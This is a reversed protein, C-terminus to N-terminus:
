NAPDTLNVGDSLLWQEMQHRMPPLDWYLNHVDYTSPFGFQSADWVWLAGQDAFPDAPATETPFNWAERLNETSANIITGDHLAEQLLVKRGTPAYPALAAPDAPDIGWQALERFAALYAPFHKETLSLGVGGAFVGLLLQGAKGDFLMTMRGGPVTLGSAQLHTSSAVVGGGILAGLSNGWYHPHDTDLQDFPAIAAAHANRLLRQMQLFEIDSQRFEDRVALLRTFDFFHLVSGRFGHDTATQTVVAIGALAFSSCRQVGEDSTGSIGHSVMVVPWGGAPATGEPICLRFDVTTTGPTGASGNVLSRDLVGNADRFDWATWTGQAFAAIGATDAGVTQFIHTFTPSGALFTGAPYDAVAPPATFVPLLSSGLVGEVRVQAAALDEHVSQTTFTLLLDLKTADAAFGRTVADTALSQLTADSALAATFDGSPELRDSAIALVYPTNQQLPTDPSVLVAHLENSWHLTIPHETSTGAAYLHFGALGSTSVAATTKVVIPAYVSYGGNSSLTAAATELFDSAQQFSPDDPLVHFYGAPTGARGGSRLRDSPWPNATAQPDASWEVRAPGASKGGCAAVGAGLAVAVLGTQWFSRCNM